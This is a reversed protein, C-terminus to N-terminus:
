PVDDPTVSRYRALLQRLAADTYDIVVEDDVAYLRCPGHIHNAVRSHECHRLAHDMAQRMTTDESVWGWAWNGSDRAVALAKYPVASRYHEFSTRFTPTDDTTTSGHLMSRISSNADCGSLALLAGVLAFPVLRLRARM